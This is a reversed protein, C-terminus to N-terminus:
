DSAGTIGDLLNLKLFASPSAAAIRGAKLLTIMCNMRM